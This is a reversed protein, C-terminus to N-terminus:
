FRIINNKNVMAIRKDQSTCAEWPLMTIPCKMNELVIYAAETDNYFNFESCRIRTNGVAVM